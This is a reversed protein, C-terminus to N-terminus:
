IIIIYYYLIIYIIIITTNNYINGITLLNEHTYLLEIAVMETDYVRYCLEGM